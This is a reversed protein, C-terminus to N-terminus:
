RFFGFPRRVTRHKRPKPKSKPKPEPKPHDDPAPKEARAAVPPAAAEPPAPTAAPTPDAKENGDAKEAVERPPAQEPREAPLLPAIPPLADWVEWQCIRYGNHREALDLHIHDEHYGDSGPGLVTTFRTCVSHLVAERTERSVNRDTLAISAGSALKIASVDLANARGHESLKAGVVRNRGRCEFSDLNELESVRSGQAEALPTMDTRIWDAIASAMTCRLVAAPKVAVRGKNEPLMITDLRVLDDGGCSGPGTIPPISPAIAISETLALRCASPAPPASAAEAAPKEDGPKQQRPQDLTKESSKEPNKPAEAPRPQPLPVPHVTSAAAAPVAAAALATALAAIPWQDCVFGGFPWKRARRRVSLKM